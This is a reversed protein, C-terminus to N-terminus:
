ALLTPLLSGGSVHEKRCMAVLLAMDKRLRVDFSLDPKRKSAERRDRLERHVLSCSGRLEYMGFM